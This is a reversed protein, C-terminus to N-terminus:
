ILDKLYNITKYRTNKITKDRDMLITKLGKDKAIDLLNINDDVFIAQGEEINYDRIPFDFFIKDKKQFECISSIYIKDFYKEIDYNKMMRLASPWNDSLLLLTYEESLIKLCEKVDDYLEYKTDNFVCDEALKRSIEEINGKYKIDELTTKYFKSFMEFEESEAKVFEDLIYNYKKMSQKLKEEDIEKKDLINWTIPTIFWHGSVPYALVKGFDLILYKYEM